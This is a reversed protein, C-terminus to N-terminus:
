FSKGLANENENNFKKSELHLSILTEGPATKPKIEILPFTQTKRGCLLSLCNFM